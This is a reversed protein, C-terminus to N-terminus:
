EEINDHDIFDEDFIKDEPAVDLLDEIEEETYDDDLDEELEERVSVSGHRLVSHIFPDNFEEGHNFAVLNKLDQDTMKLFQDISMEISKGNPLQYIM